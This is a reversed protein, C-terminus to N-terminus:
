TLIILLILIVILLGASIYVGGSIDSLQRQIDRVEKKLEKKQPATLNAKDMKKIEMIRARLAMAKEADANNTVAVVNAKPAAEVQNPVFSFSMAAMMLCITIKKM